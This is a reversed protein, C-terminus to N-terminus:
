ENEKVPDTEHQDAEPAAQEATEAQAAKGYAAGEWRAGTIATFDQIGRDGDWHGPPKTHGRSLSCREGFIGRANCIEATTVVGYNRKHQTM